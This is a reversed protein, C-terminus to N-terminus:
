ENVRRRIAALSEAPFDAPVILRWVIRGDQRSQALRFEGGPGGYVVRVESAFAEIRIPFRGDILRITGGLREVAEAMEITDITAGQKAMLEDRGAALRAARRAVTDFSDQLANGALRSDPAMQRPLVREQREGADRDRAAQEAVAPAPQAAERERAQDMPQPAAPPAAASTTAGTTPAEDRFSEPAPAATSRAEETPTTAEIPAATQVASEMAREAGPGMFPGRALYGAGAAVALSAAYALRRPWRRIRSPPAIVEVPTSAPVEDLAGLLEEAEDALGRAAELRARCTGCTALHDQIAALESSPIEGDLLEEIRGDDLHPM